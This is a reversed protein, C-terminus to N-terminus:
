SRELLEVRNGAPDRVYFRRCGEIPARDDEIDRGARSLRHRMADLDAVRLAVHRKSQLNEPPTEDIGVHLELNGCDFWVGGRSRLPGPKDRELLGLLGTYFERLAQEFGKPAAIQVHDLAVITTEKM